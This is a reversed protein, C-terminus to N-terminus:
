SNTSKRIKVLFAWGVLSGFFYYIFDSSVFSTGIITRGIFTSRIVELFVPHWLQLIELICTIILVNLAIKWPKAKILIFSIVLCWFVEYLLGGFSDNFWKAGHGAYFKSAFGLSTIVLINLSTVIRIKKM